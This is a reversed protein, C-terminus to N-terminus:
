IVATSELRFANLLHVIVGQEGLFESEEVSGFSHPTTTTAKKLYLTQNNTKTIDFDLANHMAKM